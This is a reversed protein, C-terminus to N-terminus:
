REEDGRLGGGKGGEKGGGGEENLIAGRETTHTIRWQFQCFPERYPSFLTCQCIIIM